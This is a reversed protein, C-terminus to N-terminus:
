AKKSKGKLAFRMNAHASGYEAHILLVAGEAGSEGLAFQIRARGKGDTTAHYVQQKGATSGELKVELEVESLPTEGDAASVEIHLDVNGGSIWSTKNLLHLQLANAPLKSGDDQGAPKEGGAEVAKAAGPGAGDLNFALLGDRIDEMIQRHQEQVRWQLEDGALAPTNEATAYSLSHRHVCRGKVYVATDISLAKPRNETQVHFVKGGARVDTNFGGHLTKSM